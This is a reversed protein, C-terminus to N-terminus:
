LFEKNDDGSDNEFPTFEFSLAYTWKNGIELPFQKITDPFAKSREDCGTFCLGLLFAVALFISIKNNM